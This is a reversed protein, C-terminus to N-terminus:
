KLCEPKKHLQTGIEWMKQAWPQQKRFDSMSIAKDEEPHLYGAVDGLQERMWDALIQKSDAPVITARLTDYLEPCTPRIHAAAIKVSTTLKEILAAQEAVKNGLTELMTVASEIAVQEGAYGVDISSLQGIVLKIDQNM